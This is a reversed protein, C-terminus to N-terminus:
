PREETITPVEIPMVALAASWRELAPKLNYYGGTMRKVWMRPDNEYASSLRTAQRPLIVLRHEKRHLISVAIFGVRGHGADEFPKSFLELEYVQKETIDIQRDFNDPVKGFDKVEMYLPAFPPIALLLDPVGIAFRNSCKRGYGGDKRASQIIKTQVNLEDSM